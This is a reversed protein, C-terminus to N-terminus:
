SNTRGTGLLEAVLGFFDTVDDKEFLEKLLRIFESLKIQRVDEVTLDTEIDDDENIFVMCNSFFVYIENKAKPLNKVLIGPIKMAVSTGIETSDKGSASLAAIEKKDFQSLIEDTGIADLVACFDFANDLTLDKFKIEAM